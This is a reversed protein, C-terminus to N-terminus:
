DKKKVKLVFVNTCIRSWFVLVMTALILRANIALKIAILARIVLVANIVFHVRLSLSASKVIAVRIIIWVRACTTVLTLTLAVCAM